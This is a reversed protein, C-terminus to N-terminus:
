PIHVLTRPYKIDVGWLEHPPRPRHPHPWHPRPTPLAPCLPAPKPSSLPPSAPPPTPNKINKRKGEKSEKIKKIEKTKRKVKGPSKPPQPPSSAVDHRPGSSSGYHRPFSKTIQQWSRYLDFASIIFCFFIMHHVDNKDEMCYNMIM